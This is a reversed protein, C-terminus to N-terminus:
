SSKKIPKQRDLVFPFEVFFTTWKKTGHTHSDFWVKGWLKEVISRVIYLGLGTGNVDKTNNARFFKHFIDKQQEEPIGRGNDTIRFLINKWKLSLSIEIKGGQPTYKIANAILNQLIIRVLTPDSLCEAVKGIHERILIKNLSIKKKNESIIDRVIHNMNTVKSDVVLTGLDIRSVSLLKNVLDVMATHSKYIENLYKKQSPSIKGTDGHLMMETYWGISTLPTRLQHSAISVFETKQRDVLAEHTIDWNVWVMHIPKNKDDTEVLGFARIDRLSNDPCIIRFKTDFVQKTRLSYQLATSVKEKDDPHITAYWADYAKGSFSEKDYGYLAYMQADWILNDKVIDWEWVGIKASRTALKLRTNAKQFKNKQIEVDQLAQLTTDRTLELEQINKVLKRNIKQAYQVAKQRSVMLSYVVFSILVSVIFGLIIIGYALRVYITNRQFTPSNVFEITWPRGAISLTKLDRYIIEGDENPFSPSRYFQADPVVRLGDFIQFSIDYDSENFLSSIFDNVRFPAYVYWFIDGRPLGTLSANNKYVPVYLLFGNQIDTDTEQKLIVKESLAPLGTDRARIMAKRRTSDSFMDYGFARKNREYFPELFVISTYIDRQGEPTISFDTFWENRVSTIFNDKEEPQIVQSFGMGQIGPYNQRMNLSNVYSYWENRDVSVSSDFFWKGWSLANTYINMKGKILSAIEETQYSFNNREYEQINRQSITYAFFTIVFGSVLVIGPVAYESSFIFLNPFRYFILSFILSLFLVVPIVIQIVIAKNRAVLACKVHDRVSQETYVNLFQNYPAIKQGTSKDFYFYEESREEMKVVYGSLPEVWLSIRNGLKVGREEPVGPLHDMFETQDIPWQYESEFKFVRLWYLLREGAYKMTSSKNNSVHWYLFTEKKNLWRPAFLYWEREKDGYHRFHKWTFSNIAYLPEAKFITKGEATAVHFINKITLIPWNKNVVEYSFQTNSYQEGQFDDNKEDYFNDVSIIDAKYSFDTSIKLLFPAILFFWIPLSIFVILFWYRNRSFQKLLRSFINKKTM